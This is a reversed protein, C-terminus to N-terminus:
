GKRSGRCISRSKFLALWQHPLQAPPALRIGAPYEPSADSGSLGRRDGSSNTFIPYENAPHHDPLGIGSREDHMYVISRPSMTRRSRSLLESSTLGISCCRPLSIMFANAPLINRDELIGDNQSKVERFISKNKRKQFIIPALCGFRFSKRRQM